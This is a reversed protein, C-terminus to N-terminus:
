TIAKMNLWERTSAACSKNYKDDLWLINNCFILQQNM